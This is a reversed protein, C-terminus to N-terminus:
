RGGGSRRRLAARLIQDSAWWAPALVLILVVSADAKLASKSLLLSTAIMVSAWLIAHGMLMGGTGRGLVRRDVSAVTCLLAVLRSRNKAHEVALGTRSGLKAVAAEFAQQESLGAARMGEIECHLHDRLETVRSANLCRDAYVAESWAAVEKELDFM